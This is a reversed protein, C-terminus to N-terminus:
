HLPLFPFRSLTGQSLWKTQSRTSVACSFMSDRHTEQKSIKKQSSVNEKAVAFPIKDEPIKQEHVQVDERPLFM